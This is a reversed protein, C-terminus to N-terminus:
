HAFLSLLGKQGLYVIFFITIVRNNFGYILLGMYIGALADLISVLNRMSAFIIGKMAMLMGLQMVLQHPLFKALGLVIVCLLDLLGLLKVIM